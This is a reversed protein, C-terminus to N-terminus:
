AGRGGRRVVRVRVFGANAITDLTSTLDGVQAGGRVMVLVGEAGGARLEELLVAGAQRSLSEGNISMTADADIRVIVAPMASSAGAGEEVSEVRLEGPRQFTSSLMFFLLLLFIVDILPTLGLRRRFVSEQLGAEIRM